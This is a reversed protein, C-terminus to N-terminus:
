VRRLIENLWKVDKDRRVDESYWEDVKSYGELKNYIKGFEYENLDVFYREDREGEFDGYKFSMYLVGGPVLASRIKMLLDVLKEKEVHLLSACAWIGDYREHEDLDFFDMCKIDIGTYESALKCLESSGDIAEVKYGRNLFKKTDRGSGCGLDLIRGGDPIYKLFRDYLLGVEAMVTSEFFEETKNNYYDITISMNGGNKRGYM